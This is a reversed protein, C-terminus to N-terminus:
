LFTPSPRFYPPHMKLWCIRVLRREFKTEHSLEGHYDWLIKLSSEVKRMTCAANLLEMEVQVIPYFHFQTHYILIAVRILSLFLSLIKDDNNRLSHPSASVQRLRAGQSPNISGEPAPWEKKIPLRSYHVSSHHPSENPAM